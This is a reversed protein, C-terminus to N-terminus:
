HLPDQPQDQPHDPLKLGPVDPRAKMWAHFKEPAANKEPKAKEWRRMQEAQAETIKGERELKDLTESMSKEARRDWWGKGQGPPFGPRDKGHRPREFAGM